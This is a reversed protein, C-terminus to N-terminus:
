DPSTTKTRQVGSLVALLERGKKISQDAAIFAFADDAAYIQSRACRIILTNVTSVQLPHLVLTESAGDFEGALATKRDIPFFLATNKLGYGLPKGILNANTPQLCVPHDSTIFDGADDGAVLLRWNRMILLRILNDFQGVEIRAHTTKSTVIDYDDSLAFKQLREFPIDERVKIGDKSMRRKLSEWREKKSFTIHAINRYIQDMFGSFNKRFRPNRVALLAILNLILIKDEESDLSRAASVRKLAPAMQDEFKTYADELANPHHGQVDIRNFDRSSGINRVLTTFTKGRELDAVFVQAQRDVGHSFGRLYTQPVYHHNHAEAM